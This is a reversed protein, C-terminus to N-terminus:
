DPRVPREDLTGLDFALQQGRVTLGVEVDCPGLLKVGMFLCSRCGIATVRHM